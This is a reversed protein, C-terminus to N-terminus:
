PPTSLTEHQVAAEQRRDARARALSLIGVAGAGSVRPVPGWPSGRLCQVRRCGPQSSSSLPDQSGIPVPSRVSHSSGGPCPLWREGQQGQRTHSADHGPCLQTSDRSGGLPDPCSKPVGASGCGPQLPQHSQPGRLERVKHEPQLPLPRPGRNGRLRKGGCGLFQLGLPGRHVQQLHRSRPRQWLLRTHTGPPRTRLVPLGARGATGVAIRRCPRIRPPCGSAGAARCTCPCSPLWVAALPVSERLLFTTLAGPERVM